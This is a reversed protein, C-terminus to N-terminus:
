VKSLLTGYIRIKAKKRLQGVYKDIAAKRKDALVIGRIREMVESLPIPKGDRVLMGPHRAYADQIERDTVAIKKTIVKETLLNVLVARETERRVATLGEPDGARQKRAYALLAMGTLERDVLNRVAVPNASLDGGGHKGGAMRGLVNRVDGYRIAGGGATGLITNDELSGAQGIRGIAEEDITASADKRAAAVVEGEIRRLGKEWVIASARARAETASLNKEKKGLKRAEQQVEEKGLSVGSAAERRFLANVEMRQENRAMLDRFEETNDLGRARASQELLRVEILRDLAEKKKELAIWSAYVGGGVLGLAERLELVSIKEGNVSAVAEKKVDAGANASYM